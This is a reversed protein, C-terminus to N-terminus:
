TYAYKYTPILYSLLDRPTVGQDGSLRAPLVRPPNSSRPWPKFGLVKKSHLGVRMCIFLFVYMYLLIPIYIYTYTYMYIYIHIYETKTQSAIIHKNYM